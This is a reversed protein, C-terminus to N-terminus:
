FIRINATFPLGTTYLTINGTTVDVSYDFSIRRNSTTEFAIVNYYIGIERLHTTQPITIIRESFPGSPASWAAASILGQYGRELDDVYSKTTAHQDETPVTVPLTLPGTLVGGTLPLASGTGTELEALEEENLTVRESLASLTSILQNLSATNTDTATTADNLQQLQATTLGSGSTVTLEVQPFLRPAFYVEKNGLVVGVPPNDSISNTTSLTKTTNDVYLPTNVAVGASEWNWNENFIIGETVFNIVEGTVADTEVIGFVKTGQEFTNILCIENYDNFQVLQYAAVPCVTTGTILQNNIKLSAGTPVGTLFLDETTFFQNGVGSKIAKGASNYVLSGVDRTFRQGSFSGVQTGKFNNADANISLSQFSTGNAVKAAMVRVVELWISGQWVRFLNNSTDFWMQGVIRQSASPQSQQYLPELTTIGRELLGTNLDLEWYLWSDQSTPIDSWASTVSQSETFLYDTTQHAFTIIIPISSSNADLVLDVDNGTKHLFTQTGAVTNDPHSVIGQRFSIKAM